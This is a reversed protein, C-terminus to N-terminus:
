EHSCRTCEWKGEDVRWRKGVIILKCVHCRLPSTPADPVDHTVGEQGKKLKQFRRKDGELGIRVM